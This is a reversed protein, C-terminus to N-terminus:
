GFTVFVVLMNVSVNSFKYFANLVCRFFSGLFAFVYLALWLLFITRSLPSSGRHREATSKSDVVEVTGDSERM